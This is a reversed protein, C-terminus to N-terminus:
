VVYDSIGNAYSPENSDRRVFEAIETEIQVSLESCKVCM